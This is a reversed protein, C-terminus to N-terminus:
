GSTVRVQVTDLLFGNTTPRNTADIIRVRFNANTLDTASWTRGWLNSSSGLTLTTENTSSLSASLAATWTAGGNWSLQACVRNTGGVVALKSQTRVEIGRITPPGVIVISFDRFRHKDKANNTCGSSSNTGSRLDEAFVADDGCASAPSVEYGDGDGGADPAQSTCAMFPSSVALYLTTVENSTLSTWTPTLSQVVYYFTGTGPIDTYNTTTAAVTAIPTYPGGQATGRLVQTQTAFASVSATWTLAIIGAGPLTYALDTPPEITAAEFDNADAISQDDFSASVSAIEPALIANLSGLILVLAISGRRFIRM